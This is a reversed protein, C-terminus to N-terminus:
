SSPSPPTATREGPPRLLESYDAPRVPEAILAGGVGPVPVPHGERWLRVADVGPFSTATLVIQGVALPLRDAAPDELTTRVELDAVGRTLARVRVSTQPSLATGLGARRESDRPGATLRGLLATLGASGRGSTSTPVAVARDDSDVWYIHAENGRPEPVQTASSSAAGSTVLGYPVDHPDIREAAGSTPVGCGSAALLAALALAVAVRRRSV